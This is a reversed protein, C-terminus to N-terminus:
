CVSGAISDFYLRSINSAKSRVEQNNELKSLREILKKNEEEIRNLEEKAESNTLSSTLSRLKAEKQKVIDGLTKTKDEAEKCLSDLKKLEEESCTVLSDQNVFYCSQKGNLKVKLKNDTVMQDIVRQVAPKGHEKHPNLFVDNTSYPRNATTLYDLVAKMTAEEKSAM